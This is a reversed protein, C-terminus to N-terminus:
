IYTSERGFDESLEEGLDLHVEVTGQGHMSFRLLVNQQWEQSIQQHIRVVQKTQGPKTPVYEFMKRALAAIVDWVCVGQSNSIKLKHQGFEIALQSVAPVTALAASATFHHALLTVMGERGPIARRELFDPVGVRHRWGKKPPIICPISTAYLDELDGVMGEFTPNLVLEVREHSIDQPSPVLKFPLESLGEKRGKRLHRESCDPLKCITSHALASSCITRWSANRFSLDLPRGLGSSLAIRRWLADDYLAYIRRCSRSFIFHSHLDQFYTIFLLFLDDPLSSLPAMLVLICLIM